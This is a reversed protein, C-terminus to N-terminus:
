PGPHSSCSDLSFFLSYSDWFLDMESNVEQMMRSCEVGGGVWISNGKNAKARRDM